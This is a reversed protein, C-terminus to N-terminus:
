NTIEGFVRVPIVPFKTNDTKLYIVDFYRGAAPSINEVNVRYGNATKIFDCHIKKGNLYAMSILKFPYKKRPIINISVKVPQGAVGKLRVFQPIIQALKDVQGSINLQLSKHIPDNTEIFIQRKFLRGGYGTTNGKVSIIGKKGPAVSKSYGATTCGCSTKVHIIKLVAEGKNHIVYAHKVITGELVSSFKFNTNQIYAVPLKKLYKEPKSSERAHSATLAAFCIICIFFVIITIRKKM